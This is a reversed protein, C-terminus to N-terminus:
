LPCLSPPKLGTKISCIVRITGFQELVDLIIESGRGSSDPIWLPLPLCGVHVFDELHYTISPVRDVVPM